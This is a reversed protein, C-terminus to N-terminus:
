GMAPPTTPSAPRMDRRVRHDVAIVDGGADVLAYLTGRRAPHRLPAPAPTCLCVLRVGDGLPQIEGHALLHRLADLTIGKRKMRVKAYPSVTNWQM